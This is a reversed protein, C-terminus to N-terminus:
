HPISCWVSLLSKVGPCEPFVLSFVVLSACAYVSASVSVHGCHVPKSVTQNHLRHFTCCTKTGDIIDDVVHRSMYVSVNYINTTTRALAETPCVRLDLSLFTGENLMKTFVSASSLSFYLVSSVLFLM